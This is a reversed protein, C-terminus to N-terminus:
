GVLDLVGPRATDVHRRVAAVLSKGSPGTREIDQANALVFTAFVHMAAGVNVANGMQKYSSKDNQGAFTFDPGFGQLNAAERPTLRRRRPGYIPSQNMAVLTPAYTAKKVRIGSPRLHVLLQWVDRPADQAQWEFKRRSTPFGAVEPRARLWGDVARRNQRQFELNQSVFRAKWPPMDSTARLDGRWVQEWLPHGPIRAEGLRALLENWADLWVAEDATVRYQAINDIERDPQLVVGELSWASPSWGEVPRNPILLPLDADAHAREAGVYVGLIYARERFQPAGGLDPPLLHPSFIVPESAVRYGADRLGTIVADWVPRQRPGAINRVNELFVVPPRKASLIALIDHVLTGREEAMGLQRGSKSFPQCPFGGALVTHDPVTAIDAALDRVDALPRMGWNERYM